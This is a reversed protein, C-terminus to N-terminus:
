PRLVIKGHTHREDLLRYADAVETLPFERAIPVELEGAAVLGALEGLVSASAADNNGETRVGYKQAAAFDIITNVRDAPVGLELALEVYGAGWADIFADVRGGPAAARIRSALSEGAGTDHYDVPVVGHGALWEHRSPSALGIVTAGTRRALQVTLTGVGGAAASVVVTEGAQPRVARVCAYASTGAVFLSGAVAWDVGAPRPTLHGEEVLVFDAQSAREHTFGIVEDGVAFGTVEPGTEEIVGALDSGQGSPFVAPWLHHILGRRITAEGPNIGAARVAVLVQGPGPRPREVEAVRLVDVEGYEEFRVARPM